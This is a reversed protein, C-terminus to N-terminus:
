PGKAVFGVFESDELWKQFDDQSALTIFETWTKAKGRGTRGAAQAKAASSLEIDCFEEVAFSVPSAGKDVRLLALSSSSWLIKSDRKTFATAMVSIPPCDLEDM